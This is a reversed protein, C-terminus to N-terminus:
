EGMRLVQHLQLKGTLWTLWLGCFVTIVALIGYSVLLRQWDTTFVLSPTLRAGEEAVEMLPLLSSGLFWGMFTGLGVGCAVMLFLGMWVIRRMQGRSVGLTRLLAFETQRETADLHSFLMLGSASALAVALFLLVLLAGWGANALPQEVRAAVM